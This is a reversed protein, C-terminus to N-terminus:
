DPRLVYERAYQLAESFGNSLHYIRVPKAQQESTFEIACDETKMAAIFRNTMDAPGPVVPGSQSPESWSVDGCHYSVDAGPQRDQTLIRISSNRGKQLEVSAFAVLPVPKGQLMEGNWPVLECRAYPTSNGSKRQYWCQATWNGSAMIHQRQYGSADKVPKDFILQEELSLRKTTPQMDPRLASMDAGPSCGSLAILFLSLFFRM